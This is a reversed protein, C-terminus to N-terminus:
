LSCPPDRAPVVTLHMAPRLCHAQHAAAFELATAKAESSDAAATPSSHRGAARWTAQCGGVAAAIGDVSPQGDLAM